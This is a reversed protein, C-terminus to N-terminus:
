LPHALLVCTEKNPLLQLATSIHGELMLPRQFATKSHLHHKHHCAFYALEQFPLSATICWSCNRKEITYITGYMRSIYTHTRILIINGTVHGTLIYGMQLEEFIKHCLLVNNNFLIWKERKFSSFISTTAEFKKTGAYIFLPSEAALKM